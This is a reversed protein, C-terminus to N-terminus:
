KYGYDKGTERVLLAELTEKGDKIPDMARKISSLIHADESEVSQVRSEVKTLANLARDLHVRADVVWVKNRIKM